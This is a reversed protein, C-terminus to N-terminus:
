SESLLSLDSLAKADEESLTEPPFRQEFEQFSRVCRRIAAGLPYRKLMKWESSLLSRLAEMRAETTAYSDTKPLAAEAISQEFAAGFTRDAPTKLGRRLTPSIVRRVERFLADVQVDRALTEPILKPICTEILAFTRQSKTLHVNMKGEEGPTWFRGEYLATQSEEWDFYAPASYMDSRGVVRRDCGSSTVVISRRNGEKWQVYIPVGGRIYVVDGCILYNSDLASRVRFLVEDRNCSVVRRSESEREVTELGWPFMKLLDRSREISKLWEDVRVVSSDRPIRYSNASLEDLSGVMPWWITNRYHLLEVTAAEGGSAKRGAVVPLDHTSGSYRVRFAIEAEDRSISTVAAHEKLLPHEVHARRAGKPIFIRRYATEFSIITLDM